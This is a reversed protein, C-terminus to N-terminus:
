DVISRKRPRRATRATRPASVDEMRLFEELPNPSRFVFITPLKEPVTEDTRDSKLPNDLVRTMRGAATDLFYEDLNVADEQTVSETLAHLARAIAGDEIWQLFRRHCTQYSPYRVPLDHWAAGTRLIWLIGNFVERSDRWPRGCRDTRLRPKQFYQKIAKWQKDTVDM